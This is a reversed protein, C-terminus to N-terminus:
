AGPKEKDIFVIDKQPNNEFLFYSLNVKLIKSIEIIQYITPTTRGTEYYTYTSRDVNLKDAVEQQTLERHLRARKLNFSLEDNNKIYRM